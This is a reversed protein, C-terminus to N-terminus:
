NGPFDHSFTCWRRSTTSVALLIYGSTEDKSSTLADKKEKRADLRRYSAIDNGMETREKATESKNYWHIHVRYMCINIYTCRVCVIHTYIERSSIICM